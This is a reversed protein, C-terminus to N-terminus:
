GHFSRLWAPSGRRIACTPCRRRPRCARGRRIDAIGRPRCGTNIGVVVARGPAKNLAPRETEGRTRGNGAGLRGPGRPPIREAEGYGGAPLVAETRRVGTGGQGPVVWASLDRLPVTREAKGVYESPAERRPAPGDTSVKRKLAQGCVDLWAELLVGRLGAGTPGEPSVSEGGFRMRRETRPLASRIAAARKRWRVCAAHVGRPRTGDGATGSIRKGWSARRAAPVPKM